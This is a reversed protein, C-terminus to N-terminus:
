LLQLFALLARKTAEPLPAVREEGKAEHLSVGPGERFRDLVNRLNPSSGNTFYRPKLALRRLSPIRSGREHVYPEIGTKEYEGRAWVIPANRAFLYRPWDQAAVVSSADDSLLRPQHCSACHREFARAGEVELESLRSREHANPNPAHSFAYLLELLAGRLELPSLVGANIGLQHLWPFRATELEFWPETGSGAGAVRFENHCVSSLDRDLARSFHPRNNALGFLPKTVVSIDGRGTYHLRGDVGGEFHCTECSFRSHGGTSQNAPAILETFFLAEGLRLRPEPRTAADVWVPQSGSADHRIWADFLPSAYRLEGRAGFVADSVGPLAPEVRVSPAAGLDGPWRARLLRGSGAALAIVSVADPEVRLALAKPVVVGHEGVNLEAMRELRGGALRYLWVFSDINEFEGHARVLPRDEVGAVAVLLEGARTAADVAWLPGDHQIRGLEREPLGRADLELVRLSREFLSSLLLSRERLLLRLGGAPAVQRQLERGRRDLTVLMPEGESLVYSTGDPACAVDAVAAAPARWTEVLRPAGSLEVRWLEAAYRSAVLAQEGAVCLATPAEPLRVRAQERLSADLTVLAKGGRLAGVYGGAREALRYPDSGGVDLWPQQEAPEFRSRLAGERERLAQVRSWSPNVEEPRTSASPAPSPSSCALLCLSALALVRM